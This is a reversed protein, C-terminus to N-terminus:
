ALTVIVKPLESDFESTEITYDPSVPSVSDCGVNFSDQNIFTRLTREIRGQAVIEGDVNIRLVGGASPRPEDIDFRVDLQHRGADLPKLSGITYICPAIANYYFMLRREKMYLSYGNFCSGHCVIVGNGGRSGILLTAEISFSRGVTNPAADSHVRRIGRRYTFLKRGASVSPRGEFGVTPPHIPLIKGAQAEAWFLAQLEALKHPHDAAVDTSQSYDSRIRIGACRSRAIRNFTVPM